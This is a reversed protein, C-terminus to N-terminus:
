GDRALRDFGPGFAACIVIDRLEPALTRYFRRAARNRKLVSWFMWSGGLARAARAVGSVLARGVGMRRHTALVYLDALYVGRTARDTDYGPYFLAYGVVTDDVEAVLVRFAPVPGFGDRLYAEATFQSPRAGDALSLLRALRAVAEADGPVAPRVAVAPHPGPEAPRRLRLM